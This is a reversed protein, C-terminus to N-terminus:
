QGIVDGTMLPRCTVRTPIARDISLRCTRRSRRVAAASDGELMQRYLREAKKRNDKGEILRVKGRRVIKLARRTKGTKRSPTCNDLLLGVAFRVGDPRCKRVV